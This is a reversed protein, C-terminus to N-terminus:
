GINRKAEKLSQMIGKLVNIIDTDEDCESIPDTALVDRGIARM